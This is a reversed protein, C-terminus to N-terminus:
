LRQEVANVAMIRDRPIEMHFHYGHDSHSHVNADMEQSISEIISIGIGNSQSLSEQNIGTGNDSYEFTIKNGDNFCQISIQRERKDSNVFAHKVTNSILENVLLAISTAKDYPISINDMQINIDLHTARYLKCIEQFINRLNIINKGSEDHCLLNHISAITNIRKIAATFVDEVQPNATKQLFLLNSVIQLNNKIRHHSEQLLVSRGLLRSNDVAICIEKSFLKLYEEYSYNPYHRNAYLIQILGKTNSDVSFSYVLMYKLQNNQQFFVSKKLESFDYIRFQNEACLSLVQEPRIFSCSLVNDSSCIKELIEQNVTDVFYIIAGNSDFAKSMDKTLFRLRNNLTMESISVERAKLIHQLVNPLKSVDDATEYLTRLDSFQRIIKGPDNRVENVNFTQRISNKDFVSIRDSFVMVTEVNESIYIISIGKAKLWRIIAPLQIAIRHDLWTYTDYFVAIRPLCVCIRLIDLLKKESFTMISVPKNLNFPLGLEDLIKQCSALRDKKSEMINKKHIYINEVASFFSISDEGDSVVMIERWDPKKKRIPKGLFNFTGMYKSPPDCLSNAFDHLSYSQIGIISHCEGPLLTFCIDMLDINGNTASTYFDMQILPSDNLRDDDSKKM